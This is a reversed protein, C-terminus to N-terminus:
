RRAAPRDRDPGCSLQELEALEAMEAALQDAWPVAAPAAPHCVECGAPDVAAPAGGLHAHDPCLRAAALRRARAAAAQETLAPQPPLHM